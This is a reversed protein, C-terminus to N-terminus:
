NKNIKQLMQDCAALVEAFKISNIRPIAPNDSRDQPSIVLHIKSDPPTWHSERVHGFICITPTGCSIAFHRPGNDNGIHLDALSFLATLHLLGKIKYDIDPTKEKMKSIIEEIVKREGPGWTFIIQANHKEILYDCLRAYNDINWRKYSRKTVPSLTIIPYAFDYGLHQLTNKADNLDNEHFPM